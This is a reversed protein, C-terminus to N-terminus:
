LFLSQAKDAFSNSRHMMCIISDNTNKEIMQQTFFIFFAM